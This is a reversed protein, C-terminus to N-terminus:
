KKAVQAEDCLKLVATAMERAADLNFQLFVNAHAGRSSMPSIHVIGGKTQPLFNLSVGHLPQVPQAGAFSCLARREFLLDRRM